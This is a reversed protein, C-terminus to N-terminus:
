APPGALLRERLATPIEIPELREEATRRCLVATLRGLALTNGECTFLFEYSISTRGIKEVRVHIQMEQEFRIPIRYDCTASVRPFGLMQGEWSLVVSLGCARLYAHEAAEMYRFFNSFHAIGAM